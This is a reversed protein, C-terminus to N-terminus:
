KVCLCAAQFDNLNRSKQCELLQQDLHVFPNARLFLDHHIFPKWIMGYLALCDKTCPWMKYSERKSSLGPLKLAKGLSFSFEWNIIVQLNHTLIEFYNPMKSENEKILEIPLQQDQHSRLRSINNRRYLEAVVLPFRCSLILLLSWILAVRPLALDSLDVLALHSM